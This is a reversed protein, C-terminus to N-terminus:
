TSGSGPRLFQALMKVLAASLERAARQRNEATACVLAAETMAGAILHGVMEIERDSVHARVAPDIPDRMTAGFYRQDIERWKQWGLVAPGDVLLVQRFEDSSITILYKLTGRGISDLLDKGARAAAPIRAALDATMGEFVRLFIEEKSAFHHYVAGKAVGAQEAIEDISTDNFGRAVFLRRAADLIAKITTTRREAQTAVASTYCAQCVSGLDTNVSECDTDEPAM